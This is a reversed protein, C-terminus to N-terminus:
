ASREKLGSWFGEALSSLRAKPRVLAISVEVGWEPSGAPVLRGAAIDEAVLRWPLWAVGKGDIAMTRLAMVVHSTFVPRLDLRSLKGALAAQLIRGLGSREDFSLHPIDQGGLVLDPGGDRPPAAVPVLRDGALDLKRFRDEDLASSAAPHSHCLLFQARGEQMIRECAQMNDALLHVATGGGTQSFWDPFFTFSLAQTSAFTLTTANTELAALDSRLLTLRRLIEEAADRMQHGAETLALRHSSRNVLTQGCWAELAGIRRSFAPQTVHRREAARSFNLTESLALFDLMWTENM